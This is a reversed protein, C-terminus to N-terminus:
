SEPTPPHRESLAREALVVDAPKDVDMGIAARDTVIAAGTGGILQQMKAEVDSPRLRGLLFKIAFRVGIIRVMSVASKRLDFLRQGMERNQMAVAPDLLGINGGTFSGTALKFFTRESGPYAAEIAERPILPYTFDAGTEVSAAVFRDIDEGTLTPLDGTAVLVSRDRRFSGIGALVNDMFDRDSVVLKDPKDVWSGLDEASPVVVAIEGVTEASRLADVVWEVMPKGAILLLGKFRCTPDIVAGDGGALVVADVIV